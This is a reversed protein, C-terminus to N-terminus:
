KNNNRKIKKPNLNFRIGAIFLFQSEKTSPLTIAEKNNGYITKIGVGYTSYDAAGFISLGGIEKDLLQYQIEVGLNTRDIQHYNGNQSNFINKLHDTNANLYSGYSSISFNDLYLSISGGILNRMGFSNTISTEFIDLNLKNELFEIQHNSLQTNARLTKVLGFNAVMTFVLFKSDSGNLKIENSFIVESINIHRLTMDTLDPGHYEEKVGLIKIAANTKIAKIKNQLNMRLFQLLHAEMISTGIFTNDAEVELYFPILFTQKELNCPTECNLSKIEFIGDSSISSLHAFQQAFVNSCFLLTLFFRYM